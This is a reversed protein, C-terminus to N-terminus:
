VAQPRKEIVSSWTGKFIEIKIYLAGKIFLDREMDCILEECLVHNETAGQWFRLCTQRRRYRDGLFGYLREEGISLISSSRL